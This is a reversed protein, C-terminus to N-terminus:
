YMGFYARRYKESIMKSIIRLYEKKSSETVIQQCLEDYIIRNVIKMDEPDPIEVSIGSKSLIEKYPDNEMTFLTGILGVKKLKKESVAESVADAIHIVPIGVEAQIDPVVRHMTNAGIVICSSGCYELKKSIEVMQRSLEVWNGENQLVAFEKFNPSIVVTKACSRKGLKARVLHHFLGFYEQSSRM